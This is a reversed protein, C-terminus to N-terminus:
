HIKFFRVRPIAPMANTQEASEKPDPLAPISFTLTPSVMSVVKELAGASENPTFDKLSRRPVGMKTSNQPM